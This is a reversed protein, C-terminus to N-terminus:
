TKNLTCKTSEKYSSTFNLSFQKLTIKQPPGNNIPSKNQFTLEKSCGDVFIVIYVSYIFMTM